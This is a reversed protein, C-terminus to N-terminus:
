KSEPSDLNEDEQITNIHKMMEEMIIKLYRIDTLNDKVYKLNIDKKSLDLKLITLVIDQLGKLQEEFDTAKQLEGQLKYIRMVFDTNVEGPITFEDGNPLKFQLPEQILISLDIIKAM